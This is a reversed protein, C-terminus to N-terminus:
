RSVSYSGGWSGWSHSTVGNRTSSTYSSQGPQITVKVVGGSDSIVGAHVAAACVTSDDTYLDTGWATGSSSSGTGCSCSIQMGDLGRYSMFNYSSCSTPAPSVSISGPWSSYSYTSVGNRTSGTYSSQGPQITVVVPGGSASIAGAHVAAACVTSDDTYLDTGWVAGGGSGAGCDCSIQMGDLGRYSRFNYSACANPTGPDGPDSCSGGPISCGQTETSSSGVCGGGSCTYQTVSRSQTGSGGCPDADCASWDGYSPGPCTQVFQQTSSCAGGSCGNNITRYVSNGSCYPSSTGTACTEILSDSSGCSGGSCTGTGSTKRVDNGSCYYSSATSCSLATGSCAGSGNCTDGTTCANADDCASGSAKPAYSCTASSCTGVPSYCAGPPTNCTILGCADYLEATALPSNTSGGLVLVKGLSTAYVAAHDSRAGTMAQTSAWTNTSPDYVEATSLAVDGPARGGAVLVKGAVLTATHFGRASGLSGASTWTNTSPDYLEATATFDLTGPASDRQGGVVLIKGSPLETATHGYRATTMSPGATWANTSPEYMETTALAGGAWGGTVLVKGSAALRLATHSRRPEKMPAASSWTGTATNYLDVAQLAAGGLGGVILVREPLSLTPNAPLLTAPTTAM